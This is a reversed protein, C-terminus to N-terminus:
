KILLMKRTAFFEGAKIQYYYVGSSFKSADWEVQHYGTNQVESILTAVKQGLYNFISLEVYNTIPLEYNITTTPNFPNPYNQYLKFIDPKQHPDDEIAAAPDVYFGFTESSWLSDGAINKALV